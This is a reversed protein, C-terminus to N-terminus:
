IILADTLAFTVCVIWRVVCINDCLVCTPEAHFGGSNFSLFEHMNLFFDSPIYCVKASQGALERRRASYDIPAVGGMDISFYV